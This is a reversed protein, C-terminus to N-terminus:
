SRRLPSQRLKRTRLGAGPPPLLGLPPLHGTAAMGTATM